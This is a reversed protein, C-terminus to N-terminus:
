TVAGVQSKYRPWWDNLATLHPWRLEGVPQPVFEATRTAHQGSLVKPVSSSGGPGAVIPEHAFRVVGDRPHADHALAVLPSCHRGALHHLSVRDAHVASLTNLVEVLPQEELSEEFVSAPFVFRKPLLLLSAATGYGRTASAAPAAKQGLPSRGGRETWPHPQDGLRWRTLVRRAQAELEIVLDHGQQDTLDGRVAPPIDHRSCQDMLFSSSDEPSV